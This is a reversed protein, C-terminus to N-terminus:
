KPPSVTTSVNAIRWIVFLLIAGIVVIVILWFNKNKMSGSRCGKPRPACGSGQKGTRQCQRYFALSQTDLPVWGASPAGRPCSEIVTYLIASREGADSAGSFRWNKKGLATARIVNEFLNSDM